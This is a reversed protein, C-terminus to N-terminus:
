RYSWKISDNKYAILLSRKNKYVQTLQIPLSKEGVWTFKELYYGNDDPSYVIDIAQLNDGSRWTKINERDTM